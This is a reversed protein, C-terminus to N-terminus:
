IVEIASAEIWGEKGDAVRIEKWEDMTNDIIEVKTAEHLIFLDTGNKAPTSKVSVASSVVIAGARHILKDNQNWAFLNALLFLVIALTGGYFGLKRLAVREAFLYLLALVIALALSILATRAWGDVSMLNVVSRYWTVFFMESEPTIKDITKERAMMLNFRIDGDGPALRLAREYYLIANTIDDIRYYANALNYYVAASEGGKLLETYIAIAEQYNENTYASDAMAKNVEVAAQASDTAAVPSDAAETQAAATMSAMLMLMAVVAKAAGKVRKKMTNEITTIATMAADFTKTMNGKVDGPAYREFECEDLATIFQAITAEGVCRDALRQSINERSLQEAPMSLKDGVYGWLARLVEDYFHSADGQAMLKAAKKLRKTAVKNAKKGKQRTIDANEIARQRFIVFLLIFVLLMVVLMVVYTTSGFFSDGVPRLSAEGTKIYRIDRNLQKVDERDTYNVVTSGGEGKAVSINFTDTKLTVYKDTETNYYVFEVPPIVFSGQHRPVALFDYIMNGTVGNAALKTKDTLKADYVDFDKPFDVTPEKILKLNGTGSVIVRMNIPDNAKVETKDIQASITFSGVGGSFNAPRKPLSDVRITVAPATITKKVEIYGSGGNFFAEFPDVSHDRQVVYAEFPIAPIQIEGTMQPFIVYQRWVVTNYGRGNYTERKLSRQQPLQIEQVHFGKLDPTENSLNNLGVRTYAKYTLLIPEQEHVRRKSVSVNIFLDSPAIKGSAPPMQRASSGRSGQSGSQAGGQPADGEVTISVANSKIQKGDATVQAPPITYSGAKQAYLIYTYTITASSTTKGNIIQISSQTSTSPGMLVEFAEPIEGARFDSVDHTDVTYTLRFQRGGEVVSPASGTLKQAAASAVFACVLLVTAYVKRILYEQIFETRKMM